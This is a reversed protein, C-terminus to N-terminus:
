GPSRAGPSAGNPHRFQDGAPLSRGTEPEGRAATGLAIRMARESQEAPQPPRCGTVVVLSMGGGRSSVFPAYSSTEAVFDGSAGEFGACGAGWGAWRMLSVLGGGAVALLPASFSTAGFTGAGTCALSLIVSGGPADAGFTGM